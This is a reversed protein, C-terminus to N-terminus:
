YTFIATQITTKARTVVSLKRDNDKANYIRYSKKSTFVASSVEPLRHCRNFKRVLWPLGTLWVGVLEEGLSPGISGESSFFFFVPPELEVM